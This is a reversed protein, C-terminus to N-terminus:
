HNLNTWKQQVALVLDQTFTSDAVYSAMHSKFLM